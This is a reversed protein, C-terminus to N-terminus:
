GDRLTQGADASFSPARLPCKQERTEKSVFGHLDLLITAFSQGITQKDSKQRCQEISPLKSMRFYLFYNLEPDWHLVTRKVAAKHVSLPVFAIEGWEGRAGSFFFFVPHVKVYLFTAIFCAGCSCCLVPENHLLRFQALKSCTCNFTCAATGHGLPCHYARAVRHLLCGLIMIRM